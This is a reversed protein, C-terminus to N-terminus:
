GVLRFDINTHWDSDVPEGNKLIPLYKYNSVCSLAANDLDVFGSSQTVAPNSVTGDKQIRFSLTVTGQQQLRLPIIPWPCGVFLISRGNHMWEVSANGNALFGGSIAQQNEMHWILHGNAACALAAADLGASGSSRAINANSIDGRSTVEFGVATTGTQTSGAPYYADCNAFNRQPTNEPFFNPASANQAEAVSLGTLLCIVIAAIIRMDCGVPRCGFLQMEQLDMSAGARLFITTEPVAVGTGTSEQELGM